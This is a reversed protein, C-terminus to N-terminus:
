SDRVQLGWRSHALIAHLQLPYVCRSWQWRGSAHLVNPRHEHTFLLGIPERAALKLRGKNDNSTDTQTQTQRHTLL